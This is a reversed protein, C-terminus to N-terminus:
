IMYTRDACFTKKNWERRAKARLETNINKICQYNRMCETNVEKQKRQKYERGNEYQIICGTNLLSICM